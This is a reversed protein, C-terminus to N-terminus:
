KCNRLLQNQSRHRVSLLPVPCHRFLKEANSGLLVEALDGHGKAGMVLLDVDEEMAIEILKLFPVGIRFITRSKPNAETSESVLKDIKESRDEERHKIFEGLSYRSGESEKEFTDVERQNIINAVILEAGTEGALTAAIKITEVSYESLDIGVLIKSIEGSMTKEMELRVKTSKLGFEALM